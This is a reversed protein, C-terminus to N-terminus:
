ALSGGSQDLLVHDVAHFGSRNNNIQCGLGTTVDFGDLGALDVGVVINDMDSESVKRGTKWSLHGLKLIM